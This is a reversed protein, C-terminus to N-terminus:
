NSLITELKRRLALLTDLMSQADREIRRFKLQAAEDRIKEAPEIFESLRSRLEAFQTKIRAKEEESAERDGKRGGTLGANATKLEQELRVLREQLQARRQQREQVRGARESVSKAAADSRERAAELAKSFEQMDRGIEQGQLAFEGLLKVAHDLDSESELNLREIKASLRELESFDRDLKLAIRGFESLAELKVSPM